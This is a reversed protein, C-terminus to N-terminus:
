QLGQGDCGDKATPLRRKLISDCTFADDPLSSSKKAQWRRDEEIWQLLDAGCGRDRKNSLSQTSQHFRSTASPEGRFVALAVASLENLSTNLQYANSTQRVRMSGLPTRERIRERVRYRNPAWSLSVGSM